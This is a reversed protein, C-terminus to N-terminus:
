HESITGSTDVPVANKMADYIEPKLIEKLDEADFDFYQIGAAYPAIDYLSFFVVLQNGNIYFSYNNDYKKVTEEASEFYLEPKERIANLIKDTILAASANGERFLGIFDYRESNSIRFTYPEIWYLGHAGGTYNDVMLWLSVLDENKSYRYDSHLGAKMQLDNAEMYSAANEVEARGAKISESIEKNIAEAADFGSFVPLNLDIELYPTSEQITDGEISFSSSVPKGNDACGALAFLMLMAILFGLLGAQRKIQPLQRKM